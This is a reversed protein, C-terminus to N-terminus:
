NTKLRFVKKSVIHGDTILSFHYMGVAIGQVESDITHYHAGQNLKGFNHTYILKGNMDVMRITANSVKTLDFRMKFGGTKPDSYVKITATNEIRDIDLNTSDLTTTDCSGIRQIEFKDVVVGSSRFYTGTLTDANIDLVLSGVADEADGIYMAPHNLGKDDGPSTKSGSNGIVAFVIGEYDQTCDAGYYKKYAGTFDPDGSSADLIMEPQLAQSTGYHGKMLYSREYNHSHGCLVLDVKNADLIPLINKRMGKMFIEWIDDSDHSGKTYPAQHFYVITWDQTNQALDLTLWDEMDSNRSNSNQIESNLCVFHANAYDYSYYAETSSALGGIEGNEPVSVIDYYAGNHLTHFTPTLLSYGNMSLYDHNGPTPYFPMYPFISDYPDFVNTQYQADEGNQYANDGMWLWLDTHTTDTYNVYSNMVDVQSQNGKGFDGVVWARFPAVTGILPSTKFHFNTLASIQGLSSGIAYYYISSPQLGSILVEHDIGASNDTIDLTLNSLSNGYWVKSDLLSDTRWKIIVSSSSIQQLYPGRVITQAYQSGILSFLLISLLYQKIM